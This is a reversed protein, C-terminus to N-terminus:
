SPRTSYSGCLGYLRCLRSYKTNSGKPTFDAPGQSPLDLSSGWSKVNQTHSRPCTELHKRMPLSYVM